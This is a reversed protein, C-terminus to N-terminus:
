SENDIEKKANELIRQLNARENYMDLFKIKKVKTIAEDAIGEYTEGECLTFEEKLWNILQTRIALLEHERPFRLNKLHSPM